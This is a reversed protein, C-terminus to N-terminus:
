KTAIRTPKIFIKHLIYILFLPMNNIVPFVFISLLGDRMVQILCSLIVLYFFFEISKISIVKVSNYWKMLFYFLFAPIFVMGVYGFNAYSEGYITGVTGIESFPRFSSSIDVQWQNLNPKELWMSRPIPSVLIPYLTAGYYLKGKKDIESLTIAFQDLFTQDESNGDKTDKFSDAVIQIINKVGEGSQLSTGISKLPYFFISLVVGLIILRRTPWKLRHDALYIATLFILPLVLRYRAYGQISIIFLYVILPILYQKKIGKFFILILMSLGFWSQTITVYSSPTIADDIKAILPYAPIFLQTIAGYIGLPITVVLVIQLIKENCFIQTTKKKEGLINKEALVIFLCTAILTIDTWFIARMLEEHSAGQIGVFKFFLPKAGGLVAIFRLSNSSIHYFFLWVAPHLFTLRCFHRIFIFSSLVVVIDFILYSLM